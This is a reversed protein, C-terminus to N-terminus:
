NRTKCIKIKNNLIKGDSCFGLLTSLQAQLTVVFTLPESLSHLEHITFVVLVRPSLRMLTSSIEPKFICSTDGSLLLFTHSLTPVPNHGTFSLQAPSFDQSFLFCSLRSGPGPAIHPRAAQGSTFTDASAPPPPLSPAAVPGPRNNSLLGAAACTLRGYHPPSLQSEACVFTLPRSLSLQGHWLICGLYIWKRISLKDKHWM